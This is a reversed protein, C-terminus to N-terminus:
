HSTTAPAQNTGTAAPRKQTNQSNPAPAGPKAAANAAAAPTTTAAPKKRVATHHVVPPTCPVSVPAPAFVPRSAQQRIVGRLDVVQKEMADASGQMRDNLALRANELKTLASQLQAVQDDPASVRAAEEVRLLVDYLAGLHKALPLSKGVSGPAGDATEVLPPLNSAIDHQIQDIYTSAEDRVSGKKWRDLRLGALTTHVADLSPALTPGIKGAGASSNAPESSVPSPSSVGPGAQPGSGAQAWAPVCEFPFCFAFAIVVAPFFRM